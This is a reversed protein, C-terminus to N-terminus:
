VEMEAPQSDAQEEEPICKEAFNLALTEIMIGKDLQDKMDQPLLALGTTAGVLSGVMAGHISASHGMSVMRCITGFDDPACMYGFLVSQLSEAIGGFKGIVGFFEPLDTNTQLRRRVYVLKESLRDELGDEGFKVESKVTMQILRSLLSNDSDYLEYPKTLETSNRVVSRLTEAFIFVALLDKKQLGISSGIQKCNNVFEQGEMGTAAAYLSIPVFRSFVTKAGDSPSYPIKKSVETLSNLDFRGAKEVASALNLAAAAESSYKGAPQGNGPYFGDIPAHFRTMVQFPSLGNVPVGMADGIALGLISGAFKDKLTEKDM